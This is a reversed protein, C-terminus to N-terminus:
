SFIRESFNNKRLRYPGYSCDTRRKQPGEPYSEAYSVEEVSFLNCYSIRKYLSVPRRLISGVRLGTAEEVSCLENLVEQRFSGFQVVAKHSVPRAGDLITKISKGKQYAPLARGQVLEPRYFVCIFNNPQFLLLSLFIGLGVSRFSVFHPFM